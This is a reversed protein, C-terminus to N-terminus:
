RLADAQEAYAPILVQWREGEDAPETGDLHAALSELHMQWGAGYAAIRDLPLGSVEVVLLTHEGEATLAAEIVETFAPPGDGAAVSEETERTTVRLRRPPQCTEIRGTADLGAAAIHIALDGGERLDGTVEGYWRALREPDTVAQWLDEPTTAFRDELRLTGAGDTSGLSGIIRTGITM